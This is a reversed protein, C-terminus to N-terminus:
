GLHRSNQYELISVIRLEASKEVMGEAIASHRGPSVGPYSDLRERGLIDM